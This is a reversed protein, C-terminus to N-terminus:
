SRVETVVRSGDPCDAIVRAGMGIVCRSGISLSQRVTAGSGIFTGEGVLVGSNVAANTAVHCHDAMTVDHEVLAQSNVICNKGIAAGANVVAGHMVISGAGVTARRSVQARPSIIVPLVYHLAALQEFLRIRPEVTKIQGVTVLAAVGESLFAGLDKDTGVVPYGFVATGVESALGILGKIEFEGAEEIVDICARAHGGAGVLVIQRRAM